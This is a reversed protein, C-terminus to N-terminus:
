RKIAIRICLWIILTVMMDRLLAVRLLDPTLVDESITYLAVGGLPGELSVLVIAIANNAFHLGWAAGISGTRATLDAAFIGFLGAAAAVLVANEGYQAPSYHGTAFILSPLVMWVWPSAFRAALQQQIYGRFVIEEAGTQILILLLAAPLVTLWTAMGLNAEPTLSPPLFGSLLLAVAAILAGLRGHRWLLEAPGMMSALGRGHLVLGAVVVGGIMGLFTALIVLTSLPSRGAGIEALARDIPSPGISGAENWVALQAVIDPGASFVIGVAMIVIMLAIYTITAVFLGLILRWLEAKPRAPAIFASHAEYDQM